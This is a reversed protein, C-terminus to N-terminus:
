VESRLQKMVDFPNVMEGKVTGDEEKWMMFGYESGQLATIIKNDVAVVAVSRKNTQDVPIVHIGNDVLAHMADFIPASDSAFEFQHIWLGNHPDRRSLGECSVNLSNQLRHFEQANM